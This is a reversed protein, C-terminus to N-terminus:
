EEQAHSVLELARTDVTVPKDFFVRALPKVHAESIHRIHRLFIGTQGKYRHLLEVSQTQCQVMMVLDGPALPRHRLVYLLKLREEVLRRGDDM